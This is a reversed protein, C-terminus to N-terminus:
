RTQALSYPTLREWNKEDDAGIEGLDFHGDLDPTAKRPARCYMLWMAWLFADIDPQREYKIIATSVSLGGPNHRVRSQREKHYPSVADAGIKNEECAPAQTQTQMETGQLEYGVGTQLSAVADAFRFDDLCWFRLRALM